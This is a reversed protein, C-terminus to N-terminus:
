MEFELRWFVKSGASKIGAEADLGTQQRTQPRKTETAAWRCSRLRWTNSWASRHSGRTMKKETLGKLFGLNMHLPSKGGASDGGSGHASSGGYHDTTEGGSDIPSIM